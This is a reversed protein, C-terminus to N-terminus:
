HSAAEAVKNGPTWVDAAVTVPHPLLGIKAFTDAIAQQQKVVQPTLYGVDYSGRAAVIKEIDLDVGSADALVKALEDQHTGKWKTVTAVEAILGRVIEPNNVAFTRSALFFSNSPAIGRADTLKHVGPFREALAYFPDWIAWADVSGSRLAAGADAPQLYVPTIDSYAVHAKTLVQVLVNQASSGKTLAIKKGRLDALTKIGAGDRVVVANSDGPSPEAAVYVFDVGAAQAFIPPTDGTYGFDISGANLAELLPPGSQFEVWKVTIGQPAFRKELLGQGKLVLLTGIKQYGIRIEKVPEASTARALSTLVLALVVLARWRTLFKM